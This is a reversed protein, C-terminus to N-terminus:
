IEEENEKLQNIDIYEALDSLPLNFYDGFYSLDEVLLSKVQKVLVSIYNEFEDPLHYLIINSQKEFVKQVATRKFETSNGIRDVINYAKESLIISDLISLLISIYINDKLNDPITNKSYLFKKITNPFQELSRKLEVLHFDVLNDYLRNSYAEIDINKNVDSNDLLIIQSYFEQQYKCKYGYLSSKIYNLISNVKSLEKNKLRFFYYTSVWFAFDEYDSSTRFYKQKRSLMNTLIVLYKYITEEDSFDDEKVCKDIYICLDSFSLNSPKTYM